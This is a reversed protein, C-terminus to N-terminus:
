NWNIVGLESKIAAIDAKSYDLIQEHVVEHRTRVELNWSLASHDSSAFPGLDIISQVAHPEDSIVLDLIADNRTCFNVHQTFFDDELCSFFQLANATFTHDNL